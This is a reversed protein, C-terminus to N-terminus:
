RRLLGLTGAEHLILVGLAILVFPVLRYAYRRIPAGILRHHTLWYAAGLWALTMVAFLVGIVAIDMASRTAFLPTYVGINDGGNAVTVAAVAVANGHRGPDRKQDEPDAGKRLEWAM